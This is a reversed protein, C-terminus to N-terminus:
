TSCTSRRTPASCSRASCDQSASSIRTKLGLARAGSSFKPQWSTEGPVLYPTLDFESPTFTDEAYGVFHGNLWLGLASEAGNFTITVREGETPEHDLRFNKVYCAVPDRAPHGEDPQGQRALPLDRLRLRRVFLHDASLGNDGGRQHDLADNRPTSRSRRNITGAVQDNVITGIYEDWSNTEVMVGSNVLEAYQELVKGVEPSDLTPNGEDDFLSAGASQLMMMIMDAEGRVGSLLPKGTKDLVQKGLEIYEEYTIDTFDDISLGAEELIDIRMANVATGPDFPVAYHQGDITSYAVVSEPFESFDVPGGTMDGFVDPYNIVNKQTANNQILFIDPLEDLTDSMALTTLKTQIDDWPTEIINLKFDPHDQQYVKEAEQM